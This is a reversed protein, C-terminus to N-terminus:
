FHGQPMVFSRHKFRKLVCTYFYTASSTFCPCQENTVTHNHSLINDFLLLTYQEMLVSRSYRHYLIQEMGRRRCTHRVTLRDTRLARSGVHLALMWLSRASIQTKQSTSWESSTPRERFSSSCSEPVMRREWWLRPSMKLMYVM